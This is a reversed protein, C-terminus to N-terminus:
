AADYLEPRAQTQAELVLAMIALDHQASYAFTGGEVAAAFAEIQNLFPSRDAGPVQILQCIGTDASIFELRGGGTQGMTDTAIIQGKTGVVELRRRPLTEPCNYAVHMQILAGSLARAMVTAGDEIAYSHVQSQGMAAVDTLPCGLVMSALDLGHPALDILAGGGSRVPDIRWNDPTESFEPGVWCAYVIRVMTVIGLANDAVMDAIRRHIAHFRQDFATAYLTGTAACAAVMARADVMTTAMPKECLVPVGAQAASEVLSRHSNNPTAVYLADIGGLMSHLDVFGPANFRAMAAHDRDHVAVLSGNLSAAIAPAAFDRAVWGCGAIGWRVM